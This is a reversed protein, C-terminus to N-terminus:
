SPKHWLTGKILTRTLRHSGYESQFAYDGSEKKEFIEFGESEPLNRLEWAITQPTIVGKGLVTGMAENTLEVQFSTDTIHSFTYLNRNTENLGKLEVEQLWSLVEPTEHVLKWRTYFHITEPSAALQITGEGLWIGLTFIFNHAKM